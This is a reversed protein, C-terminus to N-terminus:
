LSQRDFMTVIKRTIGSRVIDGNEFQFVPIHIKDWDEEAKTTFYKNENEVADLFDKFGKGTLLSNSQRIDGNLFITSGDGVRTTLTKLQELTCEQAEEVLIFSDDVSLGKCTEMPVYVIKKNEVLYNFWGDNGSNQSLIKKITGIIPGLWVAMKEAESGAFFGLSRGMPLPNRTIIIKDIEGENLLQCAAYAGVYSKGTGAPGLAFVLPSNRCANFLQRQKNSKPQFTPLRYNKQEEVKQVNITKRQTKTTRPM